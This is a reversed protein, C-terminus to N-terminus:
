NILNQISLVQEKIYLDNSSKGHPEGENELLTINLEFDFHQFVIRQSDQQYDPIGQLYLDGRLDGKVKLHM